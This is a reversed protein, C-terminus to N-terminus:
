KILMYLIDYNLKSTRESLLIGNPNNYNFDEFRQHYCRNKLRLSSWYLTTIDLTPLWYCTEKGLSIPADYVLPFNMFGITILAARDSQNIQFM